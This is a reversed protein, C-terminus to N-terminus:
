AAGVAIPEFFVWPRRWLRDECEKMAYLLADRPGRINPHLGRHNIFFMKQESERTWVPRQSRATNIADALVPRLFHDIAQNQHPSDVLLRVAPLNFLIAAEVTTSGIISVLLAIVNRARVMLSSMRKSPSSSMYSRLGSALIETEQFTAVNRKALRARVPEADRSGVIWGVREANVPLGQSKLDQIVADVLASSVSRSPRGLYVDIVRVFWSPLTRRDESFDVVTIACRKTFELFPNPWNLLMPWAAAILNRRYEIRLRDFTIGFISDRDLMTAVEAFVADAYVKKRSRSRLALNMIGRLACFWETIPVECLVGTATINEDVLSKACDLLGTSTEILRPSEKLYTFCRPCQDIDVDREFYGTASAAAYPWAPLACDPCQNHMRVRHTPCILSVSLRWHIRFYPKQDNQLCAPCFQSGTGLSQRAYQLFTIWRPISRGKALKQYTLLPHPWVTLSFIEEPTKELMQAVSSLVDSNAQLDPDTRRLEPPSVPFLRYGNQTWIRQRYSSLSEAM